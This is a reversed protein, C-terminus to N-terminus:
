ADDTEVLVGFRVTGVVVYTARAHTPERGERDLAIVVGLSRVRPLGDKGLGVPGGPWPSTTVPLSWTTQNDYSLEFQFQV